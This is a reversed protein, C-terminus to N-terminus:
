LERFDLLLIFKMLRILKHMATKKLGERSSGIFPFRCSARPQLSLGFQRAGGRIFPVRAVAKQKKEDKTKKKARNLRCM